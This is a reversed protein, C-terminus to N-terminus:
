HKNQFGHCGLCHINSRKGKIGAPFLCDFYFREGCVCRLQVAETLARYYLLCASRANLLRGKLFIWLIIVVHTFMTCAWYLCMWTHVCTCVGSCFFLAESLMLSSNARQGNTHTKTPQFSLPRPKLAMHILHAKAHFDIGSPVWIAATWVRESVGAGGLRGRTREKEICGGWCVCLGCRGLDSQECVSFCVSIVASWMSTSQVCIITCFFHYRLDQLDYASVVM